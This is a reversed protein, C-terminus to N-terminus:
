PERKREGADGSFQQAKEADSDVQSALIAAAATVSLETAVADRDPTGDVILDYGKSKAVLTYPTVSPRACGKECGSVHLAVGGGRLRRAIPALVAADAQTDAGARDCGPAGICAAVGLRPDDLSVVFNLASLHGRLVDVRGEAVRPLIMARWPTLRIEGEAHAEAADAAGALMQASLRGFPAGAGFCLVGEGARVAGIPSAEPRPERSPAPDLRLGAAGAIREASCAGLLDRMRAPAERMAEGIRLFARAISLGTEVVAGPECVGLSVASRATGGLGIAFANRDACYDFRVDAPEQALPLLGGDGILYGFKAPLQRLTKDRVLAAELAKGIEGVDVGGDLGHLPSVLVNRIAEARPDDDILGLGRLIEVLAPLADELVGRMQLNGRSTLEFIGNGYEGGASALRRLAGSSLVGGSVRLRVLLGDKAPM